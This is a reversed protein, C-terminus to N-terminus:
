QFYRYEGSGKKRKIKTKRKMRIEGKRKMNTKMRSTSRMMEKNGMRRMMKTEM